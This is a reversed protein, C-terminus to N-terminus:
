FIICCKNKELNESELIINDNQNMLLIDKNKSHINKAFNEFITNLITIENKVSISYYKINKNKCFEMIQKESIEITSNDILDVKNGFLIFPFNEVDKPNTTLLFEDYWTQINYFSKYNTIDFVLVCADTGRYFATGLSYFKENGATDWLQLVIKNNDIFIEKTFFDSGITSKYILSFNKNVYKNLISTKGVGSDGLVIIKYFNKYRSM